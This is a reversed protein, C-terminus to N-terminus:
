AQPQALFTMFGEHEVYEVRSLRFRRNNGRYWVRRWTDAVFEGDWADRGYVKVHVVSTADRGALVVVGERGRVIPRLDELEIGLGQLATQVRSLTPLGGPSGFVLHLSTGALLGIAVSAVGGSALAAGLFICSILQAAILGRGFRRFPRTVSPAMTALAASTAVLGGPPFVPPGDFDGLRRFLDGASHGVLEAVIAALGIGVVIALAVEAILAWRGRVMAIIM